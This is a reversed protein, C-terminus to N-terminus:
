GHTYRKKFFTNLVDAVDDTTSLSIYSARIKKLTNKLSKKENTYEQLYKKTNVIKWSFLIDTNPTSEWPHVIDLYILDNHHALLRLEPTIETGSIFIIANKPRMRMLQNLGTNGYYASYAYQGYRASIEITHHAKQTAHKRSESPHGIWFNDHPNSWWYSIIHYDWHTERVRISLWEPKMKNWAIDRIDDTDTYWRIHSWDSWRQRITAIAWRARDRGSRLSRFLIPQTM